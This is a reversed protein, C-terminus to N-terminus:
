RGDDDGQPPDTTPAITRSKHIVVSLCAHAVQRPESQALAQAQAGFGNQKSASFVMRSRVRHM